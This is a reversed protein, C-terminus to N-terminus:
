HRRELPPARGRRRTGDRPLPGSPAPPGRPPPPPPPPPAAGGAGGPPAPRPRAPTGARWDGRLQALIGDGPRRLITLRTSSPHFSGAGKLGLQRERARASPRVLQAAPRAAYRATISREMPQFPVGEIRGQLPRIRR